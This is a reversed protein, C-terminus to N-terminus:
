QKRGELRQVGRDALLLTMQAIATQNLLKLRAGQHIYHAAPRELQPSNAM